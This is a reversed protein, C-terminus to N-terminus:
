LLTLRSVSARFYECFFFGFRRVIQESLVGTQVIGFRVISDNGHCEKPNCKKLAGKRQQEQESAQQRLYLRHKRAIQHVAFGAGDAAAIIHRTATFHAAAARHIFLGLGNNAHTGVDLRGPPIGLTPM